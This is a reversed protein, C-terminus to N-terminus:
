GQVRAERDWAVRFGQLDVGHVPHRQWKDTSRLSSLGSFSHNSHNANPLCEPVEEVEPSNAKLLLSLIAQDHRNEKFYPANQAISKEDSILHFDSNLDVLKKM